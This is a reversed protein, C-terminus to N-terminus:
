FLAESRRQYRALSVSSAESNSYQAWSTRLGLTDYQLIQKDVEKRAIMATLVLELQRITMETTIELMCRKGEAPAIASAVAHGCGRLRRADQVGPALLGLGTRCSSASFTSVGSVSGLGM